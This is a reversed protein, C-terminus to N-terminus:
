KYNYKKNFINFLALISLFLAIPKIVRTASNLHWELNLPTSLYIVFLFLIYLLSISAGIILLDKSKYCFISIVFFILGFLFKDNLILHDFILIYNEFNLFRDNLSKISISNLSSNNEIGSNFCYYNWLLFPIISILFCIIIKKSYNNKKLFAMAFGIFISVLLIIGEVKILSLIILLSILTLYESLIIIKRKSFSYLTLIVAVFYVSLLGDLEGNVFFKGIIFLMISLFFLFFNKDFFSSIIIIGPVFMLTVGIKPYIENWYGLVNVLSAVFAPVLNPYNSHAFLAYNNNTAFITQDYFIQKAKFLWISRADWANTPTGLAIIIIFLIFIILFKNKEFKILYLISFMVFLLFNIKVFFNLSEFIFFFYNLIILNLIILINIKNDINKLM